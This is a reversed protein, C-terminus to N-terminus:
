GPGEMRLGAGSFAGFFPVAPVGLLAVMRRWGGAPLEERSHLPRTTDLRWGGPHRRRYGAEHPYDEAHLVSRALVERAGMERALEGAGAYLAVALPREAAWPDSVLLGLLLRKPETRYRLAALVKGGPKAAAVMFREESALTRSMGNLELLEAIQAEDEPLGWRVQIREERDHASGSERMKPEERDAPEKTSTRGNPKEDTRPPTPVVPVTRTGRYVRGLAGPLERVESLCPLGDSANDRRLRTGSEGSPATEAPAPSAVEVHEELNVHGVM